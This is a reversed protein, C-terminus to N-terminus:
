RRIRAAIVALGLALLWMGIAIPVFHHGTLFPSYRWYVGGGYAVVVAILGLAISLVWRLLWKMAEEEEDAEWGEASACERVRVDGGDRHAQVNRHKPEM